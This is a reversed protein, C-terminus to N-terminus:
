LSQIYTDVNDIEGTLRKVKKRLNEHELEAQPVEKLGQLEQFLKDNEYALKKAKREAKGKEKQLKENEVRLRRVIEEMEGSKLQMSGM